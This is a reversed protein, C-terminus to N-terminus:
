DKNEIAKELIRWIHSDKKVPSVMGTVPGGPVDSEGYYYSTEFAYGYVIRFDDRELFPEKIIM